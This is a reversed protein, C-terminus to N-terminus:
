DVKGSKALGKGWRRWGLKLVSSDVAGKWEVGTGPAKELLGRKSLDEELKETKAIKISRGVL